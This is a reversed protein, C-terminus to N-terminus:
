HEVGGVVQVLALRTHRCLIKAEEFIQQSLERTPAVVLASPLGNKDPPSSLLTKLVTVLFAATKGTGTQAQGAIDTGKLSVPLTKAQIPTCFEYKADKLAAMITEPLNFEDFRTSTLFDPGPARAETEPSNVDQNM